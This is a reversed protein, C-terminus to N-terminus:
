AHLESPDRRLEIKGDSVRVEFRPQPAVAPGQVIGGDKLRFISGHWPCTVTEGDSEGEDLPGGRHSCRNHIALVKDGSRFLLIPVGDVKAATPTAEPLEDLAFLQTWETPGEDFVTGDVGVGKRFTLHGGLYAGLTMVGAGAAALAKGAGRAGRRRAVLSSGFFLSAVVNVGAHVLGIRRAKGWTDSWDSLGTVATPVVAALGVAVLTDASQEGGEGGLLDLILASTWAGIAVDTLIPHVPHGVRTGSLLDKVLGVPIAKNVADALPNAVKDIAEVHELAEVLDLAV